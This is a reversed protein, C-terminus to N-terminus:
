ADQDGCITASEFLEDLVYIDIDVCDTDDDNFKWEVRNPVELEKAYAFFVRLGTLEELRKEFLYYSLSFIKDVMSLIEQNRHMKIEVEYAMNMIKLLNVLISDSKIKKELKGM